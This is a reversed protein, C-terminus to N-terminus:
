PIAAMRIQENRLRIKRSSQLAPPLGESSAFLKPRIPSPCPKKLALFLYDGDISIRIFSLFTFTVVCNWSLSWNPVFDGHKWNRIKCSRLIHSRRIESFHTTVRSNRKSSWQRVYDFVMCFYRYIQPSVKQDRQKLSPVHKQTLDYADGQSSRIARFFSSIVARNNILFHTQPFYNM